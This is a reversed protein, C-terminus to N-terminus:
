RKITEASYQIKGESNIENSSSEGQAAMLELEQMRQTFRLETEEMNRRRLQRQQLEKYIRDAEKDELYLFEEDILFSDLGAWSSQFSNDQLMDDFHEIKLDYKQGQPM